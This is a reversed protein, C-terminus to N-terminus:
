STPNLVMGMFLISRTQNDEIVFFFPRDVIMEFPTIPRFVATAQMHGTTVAAAETGEENVEVYSKQKVESVFLPEDAMASFDAASTFASRMGLAKLPKNLEVDYDLKFRPLALTGERDVLQPLIKSQWSEGNLDVLLKTLSSNTAPLFLYMQLRGGAYPLRVTQYGDGAQYSFHGRQWMMPVQKNGSSSHFDHPRTQNKDFPKVWKGKFYIANALIVQTAPPFPFRVVQKIKGRTTKDAWYNITDASKAKSFDVGALEAQFYNKNEAVFAPKLQLEKQYWIGNALNLTVDPLSTLSQNLNRCAENLSSSPLGATKLVKQMETRTEGAAGNGAMQLVTSVSFPSIFVNADPQEGAIQKLLNFAFGTNAAALKAPDATSDARVALSAFCILFVAWVRRRSSQPSSALKM